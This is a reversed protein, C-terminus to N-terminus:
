FGLENMAKSFKAILEPTDEASEAQASSMGAKMALRMKALIADPRKDLSEFFKILKKGM